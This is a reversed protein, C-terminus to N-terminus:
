KLIIKDIVILKVECGKYIVILKMLCKVELLKM